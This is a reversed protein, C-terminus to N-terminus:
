LHTKLYEIDDETPLKVLKNRRDMAQTEAITNGISSHYLRKVKKVFAEVTRREDEQKSGLMLNYISAVSNILNFMDNTTSSSNLRGTKPDPKGMIRVAEIINTILKMQQKLPGMRRLNVRISDHHHRVTKTKTGEANLWLFVTRDHRIEYCIESDKIKPIIKIAGENTIKHYNGM